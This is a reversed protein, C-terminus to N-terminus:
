ERKRATALLERTGIAQFRVGARSSKFTNVLNCFMSVATQVPHRLSWSRLGRSHWMGVTIGYHVEV